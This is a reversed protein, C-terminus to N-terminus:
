WLMEEEPALPHVVLGSGVKPYFYTSKHPMILGASAVRQVQDIRTPNILFTMDYRGAQVQLMADLLDHRFHINNENALFAEPLELLHRLLIQDLIVVDLGHLVEPLGLAALYSAVARHKAKFLYFQEVERCYFGILNAEGSQGLELHTQWEKQGRQTVEFSSVEFFAGTKKLFAEVNRHQLNRILRHTPLIVLGGQNMNSLYMMIYEYPARPGAHSFRRRQIERYALATEYRHHGDAIFIAKDLMLARAQQLVKLNRIRWFRHEMGQRDRFSFVPDSDRGSKLEHDVLQAPDAYLAFVPSLNAQCSLMLGLREDKVAQFTKEHPRV